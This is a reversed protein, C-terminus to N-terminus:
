YKSKIATLGITLFIVPAVFACSWPPLGGGKGLALGVADLVYYLFGIILALGISTFTAAKRKGASTLVFPLGALVIVINRLPLAIKEFLDVRLNNVTRIAGSDSFRGIYDNLQRINMATVDLRQRLFDKPTEKIDMLKEPYVKVEGPMNPLASNYATIQCNHFKWAIGTWEGKLAVIKEILNQNRDHGIISIGVITNTNPDFTDIFYLRNKLGYLTFNKIIPIGKKKESVTVKIQNERIQQNVLSSQPVFCENVLLVAASVVLSFILAPRTVQWFNMGSTRIAVIENHSSLNSYTFLTAMLCAMTSTNVIIMPLFSLYYQGIVTWPVHKEIFDQINGFTDILIFLFAFTIVMGFFISLISKLIYRDIIRM